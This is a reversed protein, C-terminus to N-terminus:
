VVVISNQYLDDAQAGLQFIAVPAHYQGNVGDADYYMIRSDQDFILNENGRTHGSLAFGPHENGSLATFVSSDLVIKEGHSFDTIIDYERDGPMTDFVFTDQGQGGSLVDSHAGGNLTDNGDGGILTDSGELGNLTDNGRGGEIHNALGNGSIFDNHRSGVADEIATDYGIFTQGQSSLLAAKSGSYSWDGPKLSLHVGQHEGSADITDHGNGDWIYHDSFHYTDDGSRAHENVGYLFHLTALDYDQLHDVNRVTHRYSMVSYTTNDEEKPLFPGSPAHGAADYNGPHKLGMSHGVEHLLTTYSYHGASFDDNYLKSNIHVDGGYYAYGAAAHVSTAAIADQGATLGDVSDHPQNAAHIGGCCPCLANSSGDTNSYTNTVTLDDRYFRMDSDASDRVRVFHLNTVSEYHRLIQETSQIQAGTFEKFNREGHNNETSFSYTVTHANGFGEWNGYSMHGYNGGCYLSAIFYPLNPYDRTDELSGPNYQVPEAPNVPNVPHVPDPRVPDPDPHSPEFGEAYRVNEIVSRDVQYGHVAIIVTDNGSSDIIRDNLDDVYYTDDGDGGILVDAGRGGDLVDNGHAGVIRNNLDNGVLNVDDYRNSAVALNELWDGLTYHTTGVKLYVTDIGGDAQEIITTQNNVAYLDNGQGGVLTDHGHGAYLRDNGAGTMVENDAYSARLDITDDASGTIISVQEFGSINTELTNNYNDRLSFHQESKASNWHIQNQNTSWDIFIHDHGGGGHYDTGNMFLVTDDGDGGHVNGKAYEVEFAYTGSGDSQAWAYSNIGADRAAIYDNLNHIWRKNLGFRTSTNGSLNIDMYITDYGDGGYIYDRGGPSLIFYDNGDSGKIRDNRATSYYTGM